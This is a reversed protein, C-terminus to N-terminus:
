HSIFLESSDFNFLYDEIIRNVYVLQRDINFCIMQLKDTVVM